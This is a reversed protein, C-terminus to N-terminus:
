ILQVLQKGFNRGKLLGLFAQPAAEIGAAISERFKLRGAAVHAELEALAQPWVQLHDSVIFGEIKMRNVLILRPWTIPIPEGNYGAIMGCLAIRAFANALLMMADLVVGGVNEFHGDIGRPAVARLAAALSKADSHLRYDVCADFGLDETVYRCKEPGGALGLVRAGRMKALQGVVGGVAGSAASVLVTEGPQPEIIRSLGYWATVGPMGVAGLYASLPVRNTDVKRLAGAQAGDVVQYQQWGGMGVVRDGVRFRDSRTEIVEGATAGIMVEDLPQAAAYSSEASMRGRMYPDLSLFHHQVLVQGSALEPVPIEVLRFNELAPERVPRSVLRQQKNLRTM